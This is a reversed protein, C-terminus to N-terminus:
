NELMVRDILKEVEEVPVYRDGKIPSKGIEIGIVEKDLLAECLKIRYNSGLVIVVDYSRLETIIDMVKNFLEMGSSEQVFRWREEDTMILTYEVGKAALAKELEEKNEIPFGIVAIRKGKRIEGLSELRSIFARDVKMREGVEQQSLGSSRLQLIKDVARYIKDVSILKSGIRIIKM